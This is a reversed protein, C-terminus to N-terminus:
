RNEDGIYKDILTDLARQYQEDPKTFDVQKGADHDQYVFRYTLDNFEKHLKYVPLNVDESLKVIECIYNM